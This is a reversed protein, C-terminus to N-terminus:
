KFKRKVINKVITPFAKIIDALYYNNPDSRHIFFDPHVIPLLPSPNKDYEQKVKPYKNLESEKIYLITNQKYWIEINPMNWVKKRVCDVPIYGRKYFKEAWYDQWQENVHTLARQWPIAASFLVVSSHRILSDIFTDAYKDDLHEAVELSLALDFTKGLDLPKSLDYPIFNEKNILLINKNVYDGDIGCIDKIGLEVFVSLWTGIGCGLDLVSAPHLMEVVIPLIERASEVSGASHCQFFHSSYDAM